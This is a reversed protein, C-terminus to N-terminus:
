GPPRRVRSRQRRHQMWETVLDRVTDVGIVAAVTLPWVFVAALSGLVLEDVVPLATEDAPVPPGAASLVADLITAMVWALVAAVLSSAVLAAVARPAAPVAEAPRRAVYVLAAASGALVTLAAFWADQEGASELVAIRGVAATRGGPAFWWWLVAVPVALAPPLLAWGRGSV